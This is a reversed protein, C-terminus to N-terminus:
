PKGAIRIPRTEPNRSQCVEQYFTVLAPSVGPGAGATGASQVPPAEGNSPINRAHLLDFRDDLWELQIFHLFGEVIHAYRANGYGLGFAKAALLSMGFKIAAGFINDVEQGLYFKFDHNRIFEGAAHDLGNGGGRLGATNAVALNEDNRHIAGQADSGALAVVGGDLGIKGTAHHAEVQQRCVPSTRYLPEPVAWM